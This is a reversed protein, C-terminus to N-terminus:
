YDELIKKVNFKRNLAIDRFLVSMGHYVGTRGTKWVRALEMYTIRGELLDILGKKEAKTMKLKPNAM